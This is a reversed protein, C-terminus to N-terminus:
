RHLYGPASVTLNAVTLWVKGAHSSHSSCQMGALACIAGECVFQGLVVLIPALTKSFVWHATSLGCILFSQKGGCITSVFRQYPPFVPVHVTALCGKHESIGIFDGQCFTVVVTHVSEMRFRQVQLFRSLYKLHFISRVDVNPKPVMFYNSYFCM